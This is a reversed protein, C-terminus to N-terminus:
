LLKKTNLWLWRVVLAILFLLSYYSHSIIVKQMSPEYKRISAVACLIVGILFIVMGSLAIYLSLSYPTLFILGIGGLISVVGLIMEIRARKPNSPFYNSNNPTLTPSHMHSSLHNEKMMSRVSFRDVLKGKEWGKM